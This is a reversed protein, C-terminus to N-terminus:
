QSFEKWPKFDPEQENVVNKNLKHYDALNKKKEEAAKIRALEANKKGEDRL